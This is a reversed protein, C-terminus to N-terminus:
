DEQRGEEAKSGHEERCCSISRTLVVFDDTFFDWAMSRSLQNLTAFSETKGNKPSQAATKKCIPDSSEVSDRVTDIRGGRSALVQPPLWSAVRALPSQLAPVTEPRPEVLDDVHVVRQHPEAAQDVPLQDAALEAIHVRITRTLRRQRGTQHGAQRDELVHVVQRVLLESQAPDLIRIVLVEAALLVETM